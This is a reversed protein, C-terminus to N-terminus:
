SGNTLICPVGSDMIAKLDVLISERLAKFTITNFTTGEAM